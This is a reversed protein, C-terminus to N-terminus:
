KEDICTICNHLAVYSPGLNLLLNSACKPLLSPHKPYLPFKIDKECPFNQIKCYQTLM